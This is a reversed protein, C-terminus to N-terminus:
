KSPSISVFQSFNLFTITNFGLHCTTHVLTRLSWTLISLWPVQLDSGLDWSLHLIRLIDAQPSYVKCADTNAEMYPQQQEDEPIQLHLHANSNSSLHIPNAPALQTFQAEEEHGQQGSQQPHSLADELLVKEIAQWM